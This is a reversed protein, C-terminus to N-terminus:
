PKNCVLLNPQWVCGFNAGFYKCDKENKYDGCSASQEQWPVTTVVATSTPKIVGAVWISPLRTLDGCTTVRDALIWCHMEMTSTPPDPDIVENLPRFPPDPNIITNPNIEFWGLDNNKGLIKYFQGANLLSVAKYNAGSGSYCYTQSTVGLIPKLIVPVSHLNGSIELKDGTVWCLKQLQMGPPDPQPSLENVPTSPPDPEIIANPDIALWTVEDDIWTLSSGDSTDTWTVEDDIGVLEFYQNPNVVTSVPYESGPGSYCTAKNVIKGIPQSVVPLLSLDGNIVVSETQVWCRTTEQYFAPCQGSSGLVPSTPPDPNIIANPDIELWTVEDDIAIINYIQNVELAAVALHGAGAGTYCGTQKVVGLRPNEAYKISSLEGIIKAGEGPIWCFTTNLNSSPPEPDVIANPDIKFWTASEGFGLIVMYKGPRLLNAVKFSTGPGSYCFTDGTLEILTKPATEESVASTNTPIVQDTIGSQKASETTTLQTPFEVCATFAFALFILTVATFWITRM